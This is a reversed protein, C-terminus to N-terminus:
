AAAKALLLEALLENVAQLLPSARDDAGLDHFLRVIPSMKKKVWEMDPPPKPADPETAKKERMAELTANLRKCAADDDLDGIAEREDEDIEGLEDVLRFSLPMGIKGILAPSITALIESCKILRGLHTRSVARGESKVTRCFSTWSDHSDRYSETDRIRKLAAGCEAVDLWRTQLEEGAEAFRNEAGLYVLASGLSAEITAVDAHFEKLEPPSMMLISDHM